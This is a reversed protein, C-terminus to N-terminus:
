GEQTLFWQTGSPVTFAFFSARSLAFREVIVGSGDSLSSLIVGSGDSAIESSSMMTPKEKRVNFFGQNYNCKCIFEDDGDCGIAAKFM